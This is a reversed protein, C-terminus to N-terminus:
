MDHVVTSPLFGAGTSLCRHLIEAMLLIMILYWSIISYKLRPLQQAKAIPAKLRKTIPKTSWIAPQKRKDRHCESLSKECVFTSTCSHAGKQNKELLFQPTWPSIPSIEAHDTSHDPISSERSLRSRFSFALYRLIVGYKFSPSGCKKWKGM